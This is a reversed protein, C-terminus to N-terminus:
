GVVRRRKLWGVGCLGSGFLALTGPEAVPNWGLAYMESLDTPSFTVLEGSGIFADNADGSGAWDGSDSAASFMLGGPNSAGGDYSFCTQNFTPNLTISSCTYKFFDLPSLFPPNEGATGPFFGWDTRGLAHSIEQEAVATFDYTGSAPIGGSFDWPQSANFGNYADVADFPSQAVGTLAKYEADPIFFMSSNGGNPYSAPLNAVATKLVANNPQLAVAANYFGETQSLSYQAVSSLTPSGNLVQPFNTQGLTNGAVPQTIDIDGWGFQIAVTVPNSFDHEFESIVNNIDTTAGAPANGWSAEFIPQIVLAQAPATIAVAAVSALLASRLLRPLLRTM